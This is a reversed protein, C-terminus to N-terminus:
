EEGSAERMPAEGRRLREERELPVLASDEWAQREEIPEIHITTEVGPLAAQISEEIRDAVAHAWSVSSNGPVLLHFDVFRRTGAQRTRLAHYDMQGSLHARIAARVQEQESEPLARDMLGHFSRGMLDFATWLINAAIVLAIIPDLMVWGTWAVLALAAVVGTTTWFDTMLHKGDAELILSGTKKGARLLVVAVAGNIVAAAMALILSSGLPELPEPHILRRVAYWAIGGAAVLILGGELGSSFYEIKEHGYTHDADVPRAAYVLSAYAAVAAVLNITSELADSLLGVSGTLLYAIAKLGVTVIAALISLILPYRLQVRAM